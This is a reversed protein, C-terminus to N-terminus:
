KNLEFYEDPTVVGDHNKDAKNFFRHANRLTEYQTIKGDNDTDEDKFHIESQSPHGKTGPSDGFVRHFEEITAYGNKDLDIFAFRVKAYFVFEYVSLLGDHNIDRQRFYEDSIERATAPKPAASDTSSGLPVFAPTQANAAQISISFFLVSILALARM